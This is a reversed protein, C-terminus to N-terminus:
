EGIGFYDYFEELSNFNKNADYYFATYHGRKLSYIRKYHKNMFEKIEELLEEQLEYDIDEENDGLIEEALEQILNDLFRDANDSDDIFGLKDMEEQIKVKAKQLIEKKAIAKLIESNIKESALNDWNNNLQEIDHMIEFLVEEGIIYWLMNILQEPDSLDTYTERFNNKEYTQVRGIAEFIGFEELIKKAEYVGVVYFDTNFVHDHLDCYYGTYGNRLAEIIAEKAEKRIEREKKNM